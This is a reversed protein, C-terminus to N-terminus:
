GPRHPVCLYCNPLGDSFVDERSFFMQSPPPECRRLRATLVAEKHSTAVFVGSVGAGARTLNESPFACNGWARQLGHLPDDSVGFM